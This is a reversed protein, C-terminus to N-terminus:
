QLVPVSATGGRQPAQWTCMADVGAVGTGPAALLPDTAISPETACGAGVRADLARPEARVGDDWMAPQRPTAGDPETAAAGGALVVAAVVGLFPRPLRM